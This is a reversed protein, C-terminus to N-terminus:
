TTLDYIKGQNRPACCSLQPYCKIFISKSDKGTAVEEIGIPVGEYNVETDGDVAVNDDPSHDLLHLTIDALNVVWIEDDVGSTSLSPLVFIPLDALGDSYRPAMADGGVGGPAYRIEASYLATYKHWQTASMWIETQPGISGNDHLTKVLTQLNSKALASSGADELQAQWYTATAQNIGAYTNANDLFALFGTIDKSSNGTGDTILQTEIAHLMARLKAQFEFGIANTNGRTMGRQALRVLNDFEMSIGLRKWELQAQAFAPATSAPYADNAGYSAASFATTHIGWEKAYRDSGDGSGVQVRGNAALRGIISNQPMMQNGPGYETFAKAILEGYNTLIINSLDSFSTTAM